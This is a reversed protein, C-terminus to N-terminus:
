SRHIKRTTPEALKPTATAVTEERLTAVIHACFRAIEERMAPSHIDLHRHSRWDVYQRAAIPGLVPQQRYEDNELASVSIYLIPFVLDDRGLSKEHALFTVLEYTCYESNIMRPTVIPIFFASQEIAKDIETKWTKGPASAQQDQWLRFSTKTRGLQAGLERQIADRISSLSGKFAEDDERSYSFFGVLEPLDSLLSM